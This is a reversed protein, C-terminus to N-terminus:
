TFRFVLSAVAKDQRVYPLPLSYKRTGGLRRVVGITVTWSTWLDGLFALVTQKDFSTMLGSPPSEEHKAKSLSSM